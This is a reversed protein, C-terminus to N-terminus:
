AICSLLCIWWGVDQVKGGIINMMKAMLAKQEDRSIDGRRLQEWVKKAQVIMEFNKDHSKREWRTSKQENRSEIWVHWICCGLDHAATSVLRQNRTLLPSMSLAERKELPLCLSKLHLHIYYLKKKWIELWAKIWMPLALSDGCWAVVPHCQQPGSNPLCKVFCRAHQQGSKTSKSIPFLKSNWRTKSKYRVSADDHGSFGLKTNGRWLEDIFSASAATSM